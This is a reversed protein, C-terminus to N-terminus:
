HTGWSYTQKQLKLYGLMETSGVGAVTRIRDSMLEILHDDDKAVFEAIIDYRGATIVVYSLEDIEALERAVERVDGTVNIGLMGERLFGLKLPDTVAVIQMVGEEVMKLVRQRVAAESLGVKQALTAYPTRGDLQLLEILRRSTADVVM